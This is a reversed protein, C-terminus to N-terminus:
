IRWGRPKKSGAEERLLNLTGVESRESQRYEYQQKVLSELGCSPQHNSDYWLDKSQAAGYEMGM